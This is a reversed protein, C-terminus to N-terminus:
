IQKYLVIMLIISIVIVISILVYVLIELWNKKSVQVKLDKIPVLEKKELNDVHEILIYQNSFQLWEGEIKQTEDFLKQESFIPNIDYPQHLCELQQLLKKTQQDLQENYTNAYIMIEHTYVSPQYPDFLSSQFHDIKLESYDLMKKGLTNARLLIANAAGSMNAYLKYGHYYEANLQSRKALSSM